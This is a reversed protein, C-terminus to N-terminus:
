SSPVAACHKAWLAEFGVTGRYWPEIRELVVPIKFWTLKITGAENSHFVDMLMAALKASQDSQNAAYQKVGDTVTTIADPVLSPDKACADHLQSLLLATQLSM